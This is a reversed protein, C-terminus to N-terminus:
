GFGRWYLMNRETFDMDTYKLDKDSYQDIIRDFDAPGRKLRDIAL